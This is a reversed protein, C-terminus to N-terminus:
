FSIKGEKRLKEMAELRRKASKQKAVDYSQQFLAYAKAYDKKRYWYGGQRYLAQGRYTPMLDFSLYRDMEAIAEDLRRTRSYVSSLYFHSRENTPADELIEKLVEEAKDYHRMYTYIRATVLNNIVNDPYARRSQLASGLARKLDREEIFTFTLALTTPPGVFISEVEAKQMQAIGEARKDGFDPLLSSNLTVVSRWYSYLGDGLLLDPFDPAADRTKGLTRLAEYGRTLAPVFDGKRTAHIAEIGLVGGLLFYEWAEEGPVDLAADLRDKALKFSTQWQAEYKFDFNELMLAQWLLGNGVPGVAQTPYQTTMRDFHEKAAKYNRQYILELGQRADDVFAPELGLMGAGIYTLNKYPREAMAAVEQEGVVSVGPTTLPPPRKGTVSDEDVDESEVDGRRSTKKELAAANHPVAALLGLLALISARNM